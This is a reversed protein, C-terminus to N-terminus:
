RLSRGLQTVPSVWGRDALRRGGPLRHLPVANWDARRLLRDLLLGAFLGAVTDTLWHYGLYTTVVGVVLPPGTRLACRAAAPLVGALLLTLVGYWVITNAVHGSPYSLGCTNFEAAGSPHHPAVRDTLVKVPGVLLYLALYAGIVPLLPRVSRERRALWIAALGAAILLPGGQGFYNLGRAVANAAPPRHGDVWDRVWRDADLFVDTGAALAATLAAFLALLAVDVLWDRGRV